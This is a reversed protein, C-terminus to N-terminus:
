TAVSDAVKADRDGMPQEPGRTSDEATQHELESNVEAGLLVAFATLFLWLLLLVVAALAGYTENYSGFNTVYLQFLLSGAVWTALAILAGPTVWRWRAADRDPGHRYLLTMALLFLAALGVWVAAGLLWQIAAQDTELGIITRLAFVAAGIVVVAAVTALLARGRRKVFGATEDEDYALNVAEILHAMGSSASWLAAVLGTVVGIGLAGASRDVINTLQSELLDRAEPPLAGTARGLADQVQQPDAFLGYISVIAALGPIMALFAFFAVGASSLSVHDERMQAVVRRGVDKWGKAPIEAPSDAHHGRDPDLRSSDRQDRLDVSRTSGM